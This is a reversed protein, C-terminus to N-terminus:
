TQNRGRWLFSNFVPAIPNQFIYIKISFWSRTFGVGRRGGFAGWAVRTNCRREGAAAQKVNVPGTNLCNSHLSRTIHCPRAASLSQHTHTRASCEARSTGQKNTLRHILEHNHPPPERTVICTHRAATTPECTVICTDTNSCSNARTCCHMHRHQQVLQSAHLPARTQQPATTPERAAICTIM